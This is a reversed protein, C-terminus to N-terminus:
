VLRFRPRSELRRKPHPRGLAMSGVRRRRRRLARGAVRIRHQTELSTLAAGVINGSEDTQMGIAGLEALVEEARSVALGMMEAFREPRVVGDEAIARVIAAFGRVRAHVAEQSLGAYNSAWARKARELSSV